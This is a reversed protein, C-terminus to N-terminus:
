IGHLVIPNVKATGQRDAAGHPPLGDRTSGPLTCGSPQWSLKDGRSCRRTPPSAARHISVGRAGSGKTHNLISM